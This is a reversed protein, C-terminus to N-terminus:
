KVSEEKTFSILLEKIDDVLVELQFIITAFGALPIPLYMWFRSVMPMSVYTGRGGITNAYRWGIYLMVVAFVMVAIDSVIDLVKVFKKPFYVDLATMRIHLRKRIAIAAALVAMYSMCSLIVEESWAAGPIFPLRRGLVVYCTVLIDVILFIKCLLLSIKDVITFFPKIKDFAAFFGSM